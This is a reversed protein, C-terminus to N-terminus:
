KIWNYGQKGSLTVCLELWRKLKISLCTLNAEIRDGSYNAMKNATLKWNIYMYGYMYTMHISIHHKSQQGLLLLALPINIDYLLSHCSICFNMNTIFSSRTRTTAGVLMKWIANIKMVIFRFFCFCRFFVLSVGRVLTQQNKAPM